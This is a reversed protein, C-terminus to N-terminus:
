PVSGTGASIATGPLMLAIGASSNWLYDEPDERDPRTEVLLAAAITAGGPTDVAPENGIARAYPRVAPLLGGIVLMTAVRGMNKGRLMKTEECFIRL